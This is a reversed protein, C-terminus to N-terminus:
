LAFKRKVVRAKRREQTSFTFLKKLLEIDEKTQKVGRRAFVRKQTEVVSKLYIETPEAGLSKAWVTFSPVDETVFGHVHSAIGIKKGTYIQTGISTKAHDGIFCGVKTRDTDVEKGTVNVKITGYTNKLNSNTTGAGINVWEGIYAHGFYGLHQKNVYGHVITEELEGGVRCVSGISCGGRILASAIITEDGICAPGTIRSGSQVVSNRGIYIPGARADLTAFAEIFSGEGVHLNSKEGYVLAREDITPAKEEEHLLTFDNAILQSCNDILDWPYNMLSLRDSKLVKCKKLIRKVDSKKMPKLLIREIQEATNQSLLAITLRGNQTVAVNPKLKKEILQNTQQNLILSGNILLLEEDIRDSVNIPHKLRRKLTPVLYDRTFLFMRSHSFVKEAREMATLMGSRLMFVPRTYTLPLFNSYNEDEFLAVILSSMEM